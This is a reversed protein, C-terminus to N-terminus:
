VGTGGTATGNTANVLQTIVFTTLGYAALIIILGIVAGTIWSKAQGVKEENGGATMWLFGAWLFILFLVTGLFSLIVKVIYAITIRIDTSGRFGAAAPQSIGFSDPTLGQASVAMPACILTLAMMAGTMFKKFSNMNEGGKLNSTIIVRPTISSKQGNVLGVTHAFSVDRAYVTTGRPLYTKFTKSYVIKLLKDLYDLIYQRRREQTSRKTYWKEKNRM